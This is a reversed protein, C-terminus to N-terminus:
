RVQTGEPRCLVYTGGEPRRGISVSACIMKARYEMISLGMGRSRPLPEPIGVGDDEVRLTVEPGQGRLDIRIQEAKGHRVANHVAEQAIRYLHTATLSDSIAIGEDATVRCSIGFLERVTGALEELASVLGDAGLEVPCLGKVLSKTQSIADNVLGEIKETRTAVDTGEMREGLARIMLAIGTLTQGLGDHLDNGIQRRERESIDLIERELHRRGAMEGALAANARALEATRQEVRAELDDRAQRLEEQVQKMETIDRAVCVMGGEGKIASGSFIVPIRRGEGGLLTKEGGALTGDEVMAALEPEGEVGALVAGIHRGRLDAGERGLMRAGAENWLSIRGRTDLVLLADPMSRIIDDMFSKSVTTRSLDSVMRNFAGALMGIEDRTDLTIRTRLRGRGVASVARQLRVIPHSITRSIIGSLLVAVILCVATSILLRINAQALDREIRLIQGVQRRESDTALRRMLPGVGEAYQRAIRESVESGGGAAFEGLLGELEGFEKRVEGLLALAAREEAAIKRLGTAAATGIASRTARENTTLYREFRQLGAEIQELAEQRSEGAQGAIRARQWGNRTTWLAGAMEMAATMQVVSSKSVQVVRDVIRVNERISMYGLFGVLLTMGVFGLTLKQAIKV